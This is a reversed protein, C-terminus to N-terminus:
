VILTTAGGTRTPPALTLRDNWVQRSYARFQRNRSNLNSRDLFNHALHLFSTNQLHMGRSTEVIEDYGVDKNELLERYGLISFAVLNEFRGMEIEARRSELDGLPRYSIVIRAIFPPSVFLTSKLKAVFFLERRWDFVM